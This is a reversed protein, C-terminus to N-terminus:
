EHRLECFVIVLEEVQLARKRGSPRYAPRVWGALRDTAPARTLCVPSGDMGHQGWKGTRRPPPSFRTPARHSLTRGKLNTSPLTGNPRPTHTDLVCRYPSMKEARVISCPALEHRKCQMLGLTHVAPSIKLCPSPSLEERERQVCIRDSSRRSSATTIRTGIWPHLRPTSIGPRSSDTM